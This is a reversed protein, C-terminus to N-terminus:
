NLKPLKTIAARLAEADTHSYIAHSERTSHGTLAMRDEETVGATRLWSTFTHRLSHFGREFIVRGAGKDSGAERSARGRDVAALEMIKVFDSSLGHRAGTSRRALRPLVFRELGERRQASNELYELLNAQVPIRVERKKKKTKSPVLTILKKGLDISEWKLKAADGLRLGTFAAILILGRWEDSRAATMLATVEEISFPKRDLSDDTPVAELASCPNFQILGERIAARFAAGLDKVYKNVTNGARGGDQLQERWKRVDGMTVSELPKGSRQPGLWGTFTEISKTYRIITGKSSDRAKRRLWETMWSQVTFAPM